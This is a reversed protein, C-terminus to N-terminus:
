ETVVPPTVETLAPPVTVYVILVALTGTPVVNYQLMASLAVPLMKAVSLKPVEPLKVVVPLVYVIPGLVTILENSYSLILCLIVNVTNVPANDPPLLTCTACFVDTYMCFGVGDYVALRDKEAVWISFPEM